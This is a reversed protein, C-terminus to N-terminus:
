GDGARCRVYRASRRYGQLEGARSMEVEYVALVDTTEPIRRMEVVEVGVTWGGDARRVSVVGETPKGTMAALQEGARRAVSRVSAPRPTRRDGTGGHGM